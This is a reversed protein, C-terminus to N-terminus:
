WRRIGGGRVLTKDVIVSQELVVDEDLEGDLVLAFADIDPDGRHAKVGAVFNYALEAAVAPLGQPPPPPPGRGLRV